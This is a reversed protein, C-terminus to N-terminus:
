KIKRVVGKDADVEVLDGDRLVETAVKTGIICPVALERAVIAAHCTIGGMDTIIAVAKKMAPVISPNTMRSVLINGNHMKAMEAMTNIIKVRGKASGGYATQGKLKEESVAATKGKAM